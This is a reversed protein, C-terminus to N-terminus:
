AHPVETPLEYATAISEHHATVRANTRLFEAVSPYHDLWWSSAAPIVLYRVGDRVAATVAAAAATSDAPHHGLYAGSPDQPLHSCHREPVDVLSPDGKSIVAVSAGAPTALQVLLRYRDHVDGDATSSNATAAHHNSWIHAVHDVDGPEHHSPDTGALSDYLDVAARRTSEDGVPAATDAAVDSLPRRCAADFKLRLPTLCGAIVSDPDSHIESTVIRTVRGSGYAHTANVLATTAHLWIRYGDARSAYRGDGCATTALSHVVADPHRLAHVIHGHPFMSLLVAADGESDITASTVWASPASRADPRTPDGILHRAAAGAAAAFAERSSRDGLSSRDGHRTAAPRVGIVANGLGALWSTDLILQCNPHQAAAFALLSQSSRPPGLVLLSGEFDTDTGTHATDSHATVTM